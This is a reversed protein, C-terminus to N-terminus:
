CLGAAVCSGAASGVAWTIAGSGSQLTPSLTYTYAAAGSAGFKTTSTVTIIGNTVTISSVFNGLNGTQNAPIGSVGTTGPTCNSFTAANQLLCGEVAAKIGDAATLNDVFQARQTYITLNPLLAAVLIGVIVLVVLIEVIFFGAMKKLTNM